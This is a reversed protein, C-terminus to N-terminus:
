GRRVSCNYCGFEVNRLHVLAIEPRSFLDRIVTTAQEGDSVLIGDARV